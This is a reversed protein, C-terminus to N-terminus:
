DIYDPLDVDDVHMVQKTAKTTAKTISSISDLSDLSDNISNSRKQEVLDELDELNELDELDESDESDESDELSSESFKDDSKDSVVDYYGLMNYVDNKSVIMCIQDPNGIFTKANDILIYYVNDDDRYLNINSDKYSLSNTRGLIFDEIANDDYLPENEDFVFRLNVNQLESSM